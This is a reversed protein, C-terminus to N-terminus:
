DPSREGQATMLERRREKDRKDEKQRLSQQAKNMM